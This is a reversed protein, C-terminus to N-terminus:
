EIIGDEHCGINKQVLRGLHWYSLILSLMAEDELKWTLLKEVRKANPTRKRGPVNEGLDACSFIANSLRNRLRMGRAREAADKLSGRAVDIGGDHKM